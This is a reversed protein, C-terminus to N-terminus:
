SSSYTHGYSFQFLVILKREENIGFTVLKMDYYLYLRKIIINYDPNSIQIAKKVVKLIEQLKLPPFLYIPLYGKSLVSVANALIQLQSIFKEYMRVYKERMM